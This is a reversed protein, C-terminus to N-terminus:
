IPWLPTNSSSLFNSFLPSFCFSFSKSRERLLVTATKRDELKRDVTWRVASYKVTCYVTFSYVTDGMACQM